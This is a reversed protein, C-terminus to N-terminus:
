KENMAMAVSASPMPTLAAINLPAIPAPRPRNIRCNRSSLKTSATNPASAPRTIASGTMRNRSVSTGSVIAATCRVRSQRQARRGPAQADRM